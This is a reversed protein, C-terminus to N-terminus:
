RGSYSFYFNKIVIYFVINIGQFVVSDDMFFLKNLLFMRKIGEVVFNMRLKNKQLIIWNKNGINKKYIFWNYIINM